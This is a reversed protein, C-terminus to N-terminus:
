CTTSGACAAASTGSCPSVGAPSRSPGSLPPPPGAPRPPPPPPPPPPQPLQGFPRFTLLYHVGRLSGRENWLLPICWSPIPEDWFPFRDDKGAPLIRFRAAALDNGKLAIGYVGKLLNRFFDRGQEPDAETGPETYFGKWFAKAPGQESAGFLTWRVRGKDDQTKSLAVSALIVYKEHNLKGAREALAPPWYPNDQLNAKGIQPTPRGHGLNVVEKLIERAIVALGPELEHTQEYESVHWGWNDDPARAAPATEGF